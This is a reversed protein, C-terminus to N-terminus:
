RQVRDMDNSAGIDTRIEHCVSRTVMQDNRDYVSHLVRNVASRGIELTRAMSELHSGPYGAQGAAEGDRRVSSHGHDATSRLFTSFNSPPVMTLHRRIM